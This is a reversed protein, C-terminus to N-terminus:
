GKTLSAQTECRTGRASDAGSPVAGLSLTYFHLKKRIKKKKKKDKRKENWNADENEYHMPCSRSRLCSTASTTRNTRLVPYNCFFGHSTTSGPEEPAMDQGPRVGQRGAASLQPSEGRRALLLSPIPQMDASLRCECPTHLLIDQEARALGRNRRTRCRWWNRSHETCTRGM